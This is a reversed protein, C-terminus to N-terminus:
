FSIKINEEPAGAMNHMSIQAAMHEAVHVFAKAQDSDPEAQVILEGRDSYERINKSLPIEGLFPINMRESTLRAGGSGFIDERKGCHSCVYHSMNEVLGLIPTNLQNFMSISKKAVNLAVDQPTSIVVAGTLPVKQCLSM